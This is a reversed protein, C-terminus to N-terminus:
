WVAFRVGLWQAFRIALKPHAWTGGHRGMATIRMPIRHTEELSGSKGTLKELAEIYERTEILDPFKGTKVPTGM